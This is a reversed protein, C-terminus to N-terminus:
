ADRRICLHYRSRARSARIPAFFRFILAMSHRKKAPQQQSAPTPVSRDAAGPVSFIVLARHDEYEGEARTLPGPGGSRIPVFTRSILAM